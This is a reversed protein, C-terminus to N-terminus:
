SEAGALMDGLRAVADAFGEDMPELAAGRMAEGKEVRALSIEGLRPCATAIETMEGLDGNCHLAVDCGAAIAATTRAGLSGSLAQMSLDDSVLVGDFGLHGRIVDAIISASLTAPNKADLAQYLVHATMAWPMHGLKQFPAFDVDELDDRVADVMPLAKHSDVGARGHGPIHKIVPLVGGALLGDCVAGGLVAITEPDRGYARDGIIGDADLGPVDLVPTCDITIGLATLEEAILRANLRAAGLATDLDNEALKAFASAPPGDRWYPPKLRQVRGGEQDILVPADPRGLVGRLASVLDRVQDPNECNRQFLIFGLPDADAFLMREGESLVTGSCGFIAALPATQTM